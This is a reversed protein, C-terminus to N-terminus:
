LFTHSQSCRRKKENQWTLSVTSCSGCGDPEQSFFAQMERLIEFKDVESNYPAVNSEYEPSNQKRFVHTHLTHALSLCSVVPSFLYAQLKVHSGFINSPKEFIHHLSSFFTTAVINPIVSFLELSIQQNSIACPSTFM